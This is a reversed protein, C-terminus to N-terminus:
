AEEEADLVRAFVRDINRLNYSLDFIGDIEEASMIELVRQDGRVRDHFRPGGEWAALAHGQVQRKYM